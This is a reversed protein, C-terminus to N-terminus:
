EKLSAWPFRMIRRRAEQHQKRLTNWVEFGDVLRIKMISHQIFACSGDRRTQLRLGTVSKQFRDIRLTYRVCEKDNPKTTIEFEDWREVEYYNVEQTLRKDDVGYGIFANAEICLSLERYCQLTTTQIPIGQKIGEIEWTGRVRVYSDWLDGFFFFHPLPNPEADLTKLDDAIQDTLEMELDGTVKLQNYQQYERIAKRTKETLDFSFPGPDYGFRALAMQVVFSLMKYNQSDAKLEQFNRNLEKAEM